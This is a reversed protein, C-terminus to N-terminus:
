TGLLLKVIEAHGYWSAYHLATKNGYYGCGFARLNVDIHTTELLLKAVDTYGGNSADCLANEIKWCTKDEDFSKAELLLKVVDVHGHESAQYLAGRKQWSRLQKVIGTHRLLERVIQSDGDGAAVIMKHGFEEVQKKWNRSMQGEQIQQNTRYSEKSDGLHVSDLQRSLDDDSDM